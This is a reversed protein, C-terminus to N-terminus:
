NGNHTKKLRQAIYNALRGLDDSANNIGDEAQYKAGGLEKVVLEIMQPILADELPFDMDMIDCKTNGNEDPCSLESAAATDEFVGTVKVKNLYRYQPNNSKLYLYNDPSITSYITNKLYENNGVYKFRSNNVNTINGTFFDTTTVKPSSITMFDPITKISRLYGSGGCFDDEFNSVEELDLCITQYNSQPIEKKIDSYKQKLIFGRYKDLLFIVHEPQYFSDDSSFKLEDLVLYVLQKYTSMYRYLFTRAFINLKKINQLFM